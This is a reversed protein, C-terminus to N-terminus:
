LHDADGSFCCDDDLSLQLLYFKVIFSLRLICTYAGERSSFPVTTKQGMITFLRMKNMTKSHGLKVNTQSESKGNCALLKSHGFAFGAQM